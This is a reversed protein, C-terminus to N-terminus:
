QGCNGANQLDDKSCKKRGIWDYHSYDYDDDTDTSKESDSSEAYMGCIGPLIGICKFAGVAANTDSSTSVVNDLKIQKSASEAGDKEDSKEDKHGNGINESIKRKKIM